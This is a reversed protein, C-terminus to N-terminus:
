APYGAEALRELLASLRVVAPDWVLRARRTALNVQFDIVGSVRALAQECRRVCGGCHIGEILLAAEPRGDEDRPAVFDRQIDPHDYVSLRDAMARANM